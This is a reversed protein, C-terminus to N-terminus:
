DIRWDIPEAGNEMLFDNAKSFPRSGFFGRSASLPSPHNSCLILRPYAGAGLHNEAVKQQAMKGWLIYVIPQPQQEVIDILASTFKQWGWKKHSNAEGDYVTLVNNLLLVGQEAWKTLCGHEPIPLELDANMEKYINRLSRPIAVGKRM